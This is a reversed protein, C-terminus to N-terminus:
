VTGLKTNLKNTISDQNEHHYIYSPIPIEEMNVNEKGAREFLDADSGLTINRFGELSNLVDRDIVFSAGIVCDNLHVRRSPDDKDPVYPNGLITVGGYLFRVSPHAQLFKKRTELHDMRYEDDSDLFTVFRGESRKIGANKSSVNGSHPKWLYRISGSSSLYPMVRAFTDDTSEDDVIIAEWSEETQGVLSELARILLGARNRTTIVVSFFDRVM